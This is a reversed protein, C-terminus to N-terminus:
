PFASSFSSGFSQVTMTCLFLCSRTVLGLDQMSVQRVKEPLTEEYRGLLCRKESKLKWSRLKRNKGRWGRCVHNSCKRHSFFWVMTLIPAKEADSYHIFLASKWPFYVKCFFTFTVLIQAKSSSRSTSHTRSVWSIPTVAGEGLSSQIEKNQFFSSETLFFFKCRM